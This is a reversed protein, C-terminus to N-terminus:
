VPNVPLATQHITEVSRTDDSNGDGDSTIMKYGIYGVLLFGILRMPNSLISGAGNLLDDVLSGGVSVVTDIVDGTLDEVVTATGKLLSVDTTVAVYLGATVLIMVGAVAFKMPLSLTYLYALWQQPLADIFPFLSGYISATQGNMIGTVEYIGFGTFINYISIFTDFIMLAMQLWDVDFGIAIAALSGGAVALGLSTTIGLTSLATAFMPFLLGASVFSLSTGVVLLM